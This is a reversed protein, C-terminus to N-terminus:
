VKNDEELLSDWGNEYIWSKTYVKKEKRKQRVWAKKTYRKGWL